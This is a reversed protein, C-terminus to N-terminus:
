MIVSYLKTSIYKIIFSSLVVLFIVIMLNIYLNGTLALVSFDGLIFIHHVVYIEYSYKDIYKGVLRYSNQIFHFHNELLYVSTAIFLGLFTHSLFNILDLLQNCVILKNSFIKFVNSVMMFIVILIYYNSTFHDYLKYQSIKYGLIYSYIWLFKNNKTLIFMIFIISYFVFRDKRKLFPTILYCLLIFTIFWLHELNRMSKLFGQLCLVQIIVTKAEFYNNYFIAYIVSVIMIYIFYPIYIRLFRKKYWENKNYIHKKGFLYGSLIFFIPVGVNLWWALFYGYYQLIHCLVIMMTAVIRIASLKYDKM